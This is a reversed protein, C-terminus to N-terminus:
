TSSTARSSGGRAGAPTVDHGAADLIHVPEIAAGGAIVHGDLFGVSGDAGVRPQLAGDGLNWTWTRTGLHRNVTLYQETQSPTVVVTEQGYPTTRRVGHTFRQWAGGRSSSTADSLHLTTRGTDVALTTPRIDVHVGRAPTRHLTTHPAPRGLAHTLFAAHTPRQKADGSLIAAGLAVVAVLALLACSTWGASGTGFRRLSGSIRM